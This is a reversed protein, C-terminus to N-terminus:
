GRFDRPGEDDSSDRDHPPSDSGVPSTITALGLRSLLMPNPIFNALPNGVVNAMQLDSGSGSSVRSMKGSPLRGGNQGHHSHHRSHHHDSIVRKMTNTTSSSFDLPEEGKLKSSSRGIVVMLDASAWFVYLRNVWEFLENLGLQCCFEIPIWFRTDWM